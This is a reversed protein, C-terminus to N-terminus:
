TMEPGSHATLLEDATFVSRLFLDIIQAKIMEKNANFLILGMCESLYIRTLWSNFLKYEAWHAKM